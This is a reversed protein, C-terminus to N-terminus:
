DIADYAVCGDRSIESFPTQRENQPEFVALEIRGSYTKAILAASHGGDTVGNVDVGAPITFRLDFAAGAFDGLGNTLGFEKKLGPHRVPETGMMPILVEQLGLLMKKTFIDCMGSGKRYRGVSSQFGREKELKLLQKRHKQWQQTFPGDIYQGSYVWLRLATSMSPFDIQRGQGHAVREIEHRVVNFPVILPTKVM